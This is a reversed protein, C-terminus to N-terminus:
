PHFGIFKKHKQPPPVMLKRIADFVIKFQHDYKKEMEELKRALDKHSIIMERLITFVRMIQINVEIAKRSKLVSSLMAIGNETFAYPKKRLGMKDFNSTVFQSKWNEFESETLQFM